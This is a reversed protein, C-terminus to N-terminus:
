HLEAEKVRGLLDEILEPVFQPRAGAHILVDGDFV